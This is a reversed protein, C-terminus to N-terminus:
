RETWESVLGWYEWRGLQQSYHVVEGSSLAVTDDENIQETAEDDYEPLGLILDEWINNENETRDHAPDADYADLLDAIQVATRLTTTM